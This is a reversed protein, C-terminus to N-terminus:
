VTEPQVDLSVCQSLDRNIPLKRIRRDIGTDRAQYDHFFDGGCEYGPYHEVGMYEPPHEHGAFHLKCDDWGRCVTHM